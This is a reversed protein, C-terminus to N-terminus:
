ENVKSYMNWILIYYTLMWSPLSQFTGVEHIISKSTNLQRHYGRRNVQSSKRQRCLSSDTEKNTSWVPSNFGLITLLTQARVGIEKLMNLINKDDMRLDKGLLVGNFPSFQVLRLELSWSFDGILTSSDVSYIQVQYLFLWFIVVHLGTSKSVDLIKVSKYSALWCVM